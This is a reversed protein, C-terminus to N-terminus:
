SLLKDVTVYVSGFLDEIEAEMAPGSAFTACLEEYYAVPVQMGAQAAGTERDLMALTLQDDLPTSFDYLLETRVPDIKSGLQTFLQYKIYEIVRDDLGHVSLAIKEIFARTTTTLRCIPEEEIDGGVFLRDALSVMQDEAEGVQSQDDLPLYYIITRSDDDRFVVPIQLAFTQGCAQCEVVNLKGRFLEELQPDGPQLVTVPTVDQPEGCAPCDVQAPADPAEALPDIMSNREPTLDDTTRPCLCCLWGGGFSLADSEKIGSHHRTMKGFRPIPM